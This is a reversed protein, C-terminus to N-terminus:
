LSNLLNSIERSKYKLLYIKLAKKAIGKQNLKIKSKAYLLWAKDDKPERNSAVVAWRSAKKFNNNDFYYKALDYATQYTPKKKELLLLTKISQKKLLNDEDIKKVKKIKVITPKQKYGEPKYKVDINKSKSVNTYNIFKSYISYFGVTMISFLVVIKIYNKFKKIRYSKYQYILDELRNNLM